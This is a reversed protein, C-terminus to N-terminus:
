KGLTNIIYVDAPIDNSVIEYDNKKFDNMLANSEYINVKCGLTYFAVTKM